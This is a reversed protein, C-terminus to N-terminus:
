VVDELQGEYPSCAPPQVTELVMSPPVLLGCNPASTGGLFCRSSSVTLHVTSTSNHRWPHCLRNPLLANTAACRSNTWTFREVRYLSSTQTKVPAQPQNGTSARAGALKSWSAVYALAQFVCSAMHVFALKIATALQLVGYMPEMFMALCRIATSTAVGHEGKDRGGMGEKSRSAYTAEMSSTRAEGRGPCISPQGGQGASLCRVHQMAWPISARRPGLECSRCYISIISLDARSRCGMDSTSSGRCVWM